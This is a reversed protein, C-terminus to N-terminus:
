SIYKEASIPMNLLFDHWPTNETDSVVEFSGSPM